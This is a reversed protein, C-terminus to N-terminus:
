AHQLAYQEMENYVRVIRAGFELIDAMTRRTKFKIVEPPNSAFAIEYDFDGFDGNEKPIKMTPIWELFLDVEDPKIRNTIFNMLCYMTIQGHEDVRKQDWKKVGTKYEGIARFYADDFTDAYGVLPIPGFMVTFQQEVKSHQTVPALPKGAEVSDAFAKGFILEPSPKDQEGLVYRRYWQEKDYEFSSIASWSLPRDKNFLPKM